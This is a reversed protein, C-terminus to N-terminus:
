HISLDAQNQFRDSKGTGQVGLRSAGGGGHSQLGIGSGAAGKGRGKVGHCWREQTGRRDPLTFWWM